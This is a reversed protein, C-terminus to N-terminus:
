KKINEDLIFKDTPFLAALTAQRKLLELLSKQKEYFENLKSADSINKMARFKLRTIRTFYDRNYYDKFNRCGLLIDRYLKLYNKSAVNVTSM